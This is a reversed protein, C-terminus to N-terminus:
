IRYDGSADTTAVQQANTAENTSTVKAGAVVAGSADSVTGGIAGATTSQASVMACLMLFALVVHLIWIMNGKAMQWLMAPASRRFSNVITLVSFGAPFTRGWSVSGTAELTTM